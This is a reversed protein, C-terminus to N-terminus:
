AFNLQKKSNDCKALNMKYNMCNDKSRYIKELEDKNPGKYDICDDGSCAFIFSIIGIGFLISLLLPSNKSYLIKKISM